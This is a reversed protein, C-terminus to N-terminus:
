LEDASAVRLVMNGGQYGKPYAGYQSSVSISASERIPQISKTNIRFKSQDTFRIILSRNVIFEWGRLYDVQLFLLFYTFRPSRMETFLGPIQQCFHRKSVRIMSVVGFVSIRFEM